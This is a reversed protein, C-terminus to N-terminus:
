KARRAQRAAKRALRTAAKEIEGGLENKIIDLAQDQTSDWAPRFWPKAAQRANGFETQIGAPDAVGVHVEATFKGQRRATAAQRRTLRTGTKVDRKLAGSFEPAKEEAAQEVPEAAKILTRKLVNKGTTKPLQSLARELERLGDVRVRNAM